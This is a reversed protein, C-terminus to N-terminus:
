DEAEDARMKILVATAFAAILTGIIAWLIVVGVGIAQAVLQSVLTMQGEFGLGGLTQSQFPAVMLMGVIGGIGSVAFINATDDINFRERVLRAAFFSALGGIAGIIMASGPGIYGASATVTVLGALGGTAVGIASSKGDLLRDLLAWVLAGACAAMHANILAMAADDTAGLESAGNLVLLGIWVLGAGALSIAAFHPAQQTVATRAATRTQKGVVIAAVLASVGAAAHVTLGGGFDLAGMTGLWGGGWVWHAIPMYVLLSWLSAFGLMWGFRARDFVSGVVLAAALCALGMHFLAFVSEPITTAGRVMALNNLMWNFSDGILPGEGTPSFVLSYSILIWLISVSALIAFIIAAGRAAAQATAARGAYYLALGPMVTLLLLASAAIMWGTDGSDAVLEQAMAATPSTLAAVGLGALMMRQVVQM